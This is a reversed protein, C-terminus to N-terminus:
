NGLVEAPDNRASELRAQVGGNLAPFFDYGSLREVEDIKRVHDQWKVPRPADKPVILGFAKVAGESPRAVVRWVEGTEPAVGAIVYVGGAKAEARELEDSVRLEAPVEAGARFAVWNLTKRAPNGDELYKGRDVLVDDSPDGDVPNGFLVHGKPKRACAVVLLMMALQWKM